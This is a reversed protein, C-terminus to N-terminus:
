YVQYLPLTGHCQSPSVVFKVYFYILMLPLIFPLLYIVKLLVNSVINFLIVKDCKDDDHLHTLYVKDLIQSDSLDFPNPLQVKQQTASSAGNSLSM